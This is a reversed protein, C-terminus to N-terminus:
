LVLGGRLWRPQVASGAATVASERREKGRPPAGMGTNRSQAGRAGGAQGRQISPSGWWFTCGDAKVVTRWLPNWLRRAWVRADDVSRHGRPSPSLASRPVSRRPPPLRHLLLQPPANCRRVGDVNAGNRTRAVTTAAEAAPCQPTLPRTPRSLTPTAGCFCPPPGHMDPRPFPARVVLLPAPSPLTADSGRGLRWLPMMGMTKVVQTARRVTHCAGVEARAAARWSAARASPWSRRERSPGEPVPGTSSRLM